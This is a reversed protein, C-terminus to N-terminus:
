AEEVQNGWVALCNYKHQDAIAILEPSLDDDLDIDGARDYELMIDAAENRDETVVRYQGDRHQRYSWRIEAPGIKSIATIGDACVGNYGTLLQTETIKQTKM